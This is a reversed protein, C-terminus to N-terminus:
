EGRHLWPIEPRRTPPLAARPVAAPTPRWGPACGGCGAAGGVLAFASGSTASGRVSKRALRATTGTGEPPLSAVVAAPPPPRLRFFAATTTPEWGSALTNCPPQPLLKAQSSSPRTKGKSPIPSAGLALAKLRRILPIKSCSNAVGPGPFTLPPLLAAGGNRANGGSSGLEGQGPFFLRRSFRDSTVSFIPSQHRLASGLM